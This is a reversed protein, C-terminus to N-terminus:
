NTSELATSFDVIEIRMSTKVLERGLIVNLKAPAEARKQPQLRRGLLAGGREDSGGAPPTSLPPQSPAVRRSIPPGVRATNQVALNRVILFQDSDLLSNFAM